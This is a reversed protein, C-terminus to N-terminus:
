SSICDLFAPAPILVRFRPDEKKEICHHFSRPARVMVGGGPQM